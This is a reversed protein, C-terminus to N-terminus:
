RITRSLTKWIVSEVALWAVVYRWLEYSNPEFVLGHSRRRRAFVDDVAVQGVLHAVGADAARVSRRRPSKSHSVVVPATITEGDKSRVGTVRRADVLIQEVQRYRGGGRSVGLGSPGLRGPGFPKWSRGTPM